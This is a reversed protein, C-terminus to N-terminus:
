RDGGILVTELRSQCASALRVEEPSRLLGQLLFEGRRWDALDDALVLQLARMAPGDTVVSAGDLHRQYTAAQRPVLVRYVGALKEITTPAAGLATMFTEVRPWEGAPPAVFGEAPMEQLEPLRDRWLSAHWAHHHSDAGLCLKVEPEPV